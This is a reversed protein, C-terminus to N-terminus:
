EFRGALGELSNKIGTITNEVAPNRKIIEINKNINETRHPMTTM